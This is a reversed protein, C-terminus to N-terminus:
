EYMAEYGSLLKLVQLFTVREYGSPITFNLQLPTNTEVRSYNLTISANDISNKVSLIGNMKMPVPQNDVMRFDAYNWQLSYDANNTIHTAYLKEEQNASFLYHQGMKDKTQLQYGDVTQEWQFRRFANEPFSAEGPLFLQNTFLAQLNYFNFDTKPQENLKTYDEVLYRKNMRDLVKISDPTLEIRFMEIGLIPQISIQLRNDKEIKLQGRSSLEKGPSITLSFQLRASLTQYQFSQKCLAEFFDEEAKLIGSSGDVVDRSTRCSGLLLLLGLLYVCRSLITLHNNKMKRNM